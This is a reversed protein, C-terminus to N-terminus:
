KLIKIVKFVSTLHMACKTTKQKQDPIWCVFNLSDMPGIPLISVLGQIPFSLVSQLKTINENKITITSHSYTPSITRIHTLCSFCLTFTKNYSVCIKCSLNLM